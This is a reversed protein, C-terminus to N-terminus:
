VHNIEMEQHYLTMIKKIELLPIKIKKRIMQCGLYFFSLIRRNKISNSQFQYQINKREGAKGMLWAILTALMGILLLIDRRHARRTCSKELSLGYQSSKLDRFSEEITMRLKYLNVVKKAANRGTLSSVLLWPERYSRSYNKSDKDERITSLLQRLKGIDCYWGHQTLWEYDRGTEGYETFEQTEKNKWRCIGTADLDIVVYGEKQLEALVTTKGTGAIGTILIKM